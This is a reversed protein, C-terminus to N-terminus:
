SCKLKRGIIWVIFPRPVSNRRNEPVRHIELIDRPNVDVKVMQKLVACCFVRTQPKRDVKRECETDQHRVKTLMSPKLKDNM